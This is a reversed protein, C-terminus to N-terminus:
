CPATPDAPISSTVVRFRADLAAQVGELFRHLGAADVADSGCALRVLERDAGVIRALGEPPIHDVDFAHIERQDAFECRLVLADLKDAAPGAPQLRERTRALAEGVYARIQEDTLRRNVDNTYDAYSEIRERIFALDDM